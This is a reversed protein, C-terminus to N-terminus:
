KKDINRVIFQFVIVLIALVLIIGTAIIKYEATEM